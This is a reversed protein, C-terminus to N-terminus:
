VAPAGLVDREVAQRLAEPDGENVVRIDALAELTAVSQKAPDDSQYERAEQAQFDAFSLADGTRGRAALRDFRLRQPAEVWVLVGGDAKLREVEALTRIGSIVVQDPHQEIALRVLYDGGHEARLRNGTDRVLPRDPEGLRQEAIYARILDGTPVHAYGHEALIRAVTDKGAL